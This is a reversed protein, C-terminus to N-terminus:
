DGDEKTILRLKATQDDDPTNPKPEHTDTENRYKILVSMRKNHDGKFIVSPNLRWVSRRVETIVNATALSSMLRQVTKLSTNTAEAIEKQTAFVRNQADAQSLVWLLVQMKANGVEDVLDLIEHLWIKHFGADGVTKLVVQADIIEGSDQDVLRRQGQFYSSM